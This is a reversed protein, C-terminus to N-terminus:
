QSCSFHLHPRLLAVLANTEFPKRLCGCAGRARARQSLVDEHGTIFIIPLSTGQSTLLDQLEFGSLGALHIDLVICEPEGPTDRDLFEEASAFTEARIGSVRLARAVASRLSTDDDVIGVWRQSATEAVDPRADETGSM